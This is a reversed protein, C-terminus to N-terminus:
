PLRYSERAASWGARVADRDQETLTQLFREARDDRWRHLRYLRLGLGQLFDPRLEAPVPVALAARLKDEDFKLGLAVRGAAQALPARLESPQAQIRPWASELDHGYRPVLALGLGPVALLYDEGLNSRLRPLLDELTRDPTALAAAGASLTLRPDEDFARVVLWKHADGGRVRAFLKDFYFDYEFAKTHKLTDWNAALAGTRGDQCLRAFDLVNGAFVAALAVLAAARRPTPWRSALENLAAMGLVGILWFPALRLYFFWYAYDLALGSVLYLLTFLAGWLAVLRLAAFQRLGFSLGVLSLAIASWDFVDNTALAHLIGTM